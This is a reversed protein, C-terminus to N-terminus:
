AKAAAKGLEIGDAKNSGSSIGALSAQLLSDAYGAFPPLLAALVDHGAQAVAADPNAWKSIADHLAYPKCKEDINNLADYMALNLIAYIRSEPMPPLPGNPGKGARKILEMGAANWTLFMDPSVKQGPIDDSHDKVIQWWDKQCGSLGPIVLLLLLFAPFRRARFRHKTPSIKM